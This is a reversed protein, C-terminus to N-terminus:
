QQHLDSNTVDQCAAASGWFLLIKEDGTANKLDTQFSSQQPFHLFHVTRESKLKGTPDTAPAEKWSGYDQWHNMAIVQPLIPPLQLSANTKFVHNSWKFSSLNRLGFFSLFCSDSPLVPPSRLQHRRGGGETAM